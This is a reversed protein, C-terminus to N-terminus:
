SLEDRANGQIDNIEENNQCRSRLSYPCRLQECETLDASEAHDDGEEVPIDDSLKGDSCRHCRVAESNM